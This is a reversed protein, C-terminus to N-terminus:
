DKTERNSKSSMGKIGSTYLKAEESRVILCVFIAGGNIFFFAKLKNKLLFQLTSM